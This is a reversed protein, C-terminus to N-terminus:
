KHCLPGLGELGQVVGTSSEGHTIFFLAPKHKELADGIEKLTFPIGPPKSL